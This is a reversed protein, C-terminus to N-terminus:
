GVVDIIFTAALYKIGGVDLDVGAVSEVRLSDCAGGLTLDVELAVKVSSAGAGAMFPTLRDRAARDSVKGVVVHVPFSARDTRGMTADFDLPAPYGPFAMPPAVADPPYELVRLGEISALAAALGDMVLATDLSM